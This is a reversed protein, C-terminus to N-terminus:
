GPVGEVDVLADACHPEHEEVPLVNVPELRHLQPRLCSSSSVDLIAQACVPVHLADEISLYKRAVITTPKKLQFM